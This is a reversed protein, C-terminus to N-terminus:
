VRGGLPICRADEVRGKDKYFSTASNLSTLCEEESPFPSALAKCVETNIETTTTMCLLIVGLYM